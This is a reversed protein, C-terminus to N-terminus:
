LYNYHHLLYTTIFMGSMLLVYVLWIIKSQDVSLATEGIQPSRAKFFRQEVFILLKYIVFGVVWGVLAGGLLDLPYHVGSYIRSYCFVLTWILMMYFYSRRKFLFSTFVLIAVSNAAHASVFGYLGGKHLVNHVLHEIAPDHVPRLRQVTVKFLGALQDAGAVVLILAVIILVAKFRYNKVIFYLLALYLPIWTEKRTILMMITDWYDSNFGNLYLFLDKDWELISQLFNM